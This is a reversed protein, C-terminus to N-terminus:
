YFCLPVFAVLVLAVGMVVVPLILRENRSWFSTGEEIAARLEDEGVVQRTLLHNLAVPPSLYGLEFAVMVVVWFHIPNIGNQYAIEAITASVLIVAGYPDMSMGILVLIFVLAMMALWISGFSHPFIHMIESREIVGGVCISLGMLSLLAGIHPGSEQTAASLSKWLSPEEMEDSERKHHRWLLIMLLVPLMMPASHEDLYTEFGFAYIALILLGWTFSPVLTKFADKMQSRASSRDQVGIWPQQPDKLWICVGLFLVATLVFVKVGWGYLEDTTVQKNLSAIIVILLCPNLVVGLSGSMATAALALQRRAGAKRLEDYILAGAAIVFIGSAGSYATPVAAGVVVLGALLAPAFKWPRLIGFIQSALPSQKLLMGVWVYLAVNVYLISHETLKTLEIGLGAFHGVSFFYIGSILAMIAFLPISLLDETQFHDSLSPPKVVRVLHVLVLLTLGICWLLNLTREESSDLLDRYFLMSYLVCGFAIAQLCETLRFGKTSVAPRLAIHEGKLSATLAGLLLILVLFHKFYGVMTSVFASVGGELVRFAKVGPTIRKQIQIYQIHQAKCNNIAETQAKKLAEKQKAQDDDSSDGDEGLLDDLEDVEDSGAQTEDAEDGGLLDDLEDDEKTTSSTTTEKKFLSDCNPPEVPDSQLQFYGGFVSEGLALLRSHVKEANGYFLALCLAIFLPATLSSRLFRNNM